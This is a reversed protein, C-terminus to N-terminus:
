MKTNKKEGKFLTKDINILWTKKVADLSFCCLMVLKIKNKNQHFYLMVDSKVKM